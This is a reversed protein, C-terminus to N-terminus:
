VGDSHGSASRTETEDRSTKVEKGRASGEGHSGEHRGRELGRKRADEGEHRRRDRARQSPREPEEEGDVHLVKGSDPVSADDPREEPELPLDLETPYPLIPPDPDLVYLLELHAHEKQPSAAAGRSPVACSVRTRVRCSHLDNRAVGSLQSENPKCRELESYATVTSWTRPGNAIWSM